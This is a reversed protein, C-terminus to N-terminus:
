FKTLLKQEPKYNKKLKRTNKTLLTIRLCKIATPPM